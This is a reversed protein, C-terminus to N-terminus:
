LPARVREPLVPSAKRAVAPAEACPVRDARCRFGLCAVICSRAAEGTGALVANRQPCALGALRWGAGSGLVEDAKSQIRGSHGPVASAGAGPIASSQEIFKSSRFRAGAM